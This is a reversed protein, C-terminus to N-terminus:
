GVRTWALVLGVPTSVLLVALGALYVVRAWAPAPSTGPRRAAGLFVALAVVTVLGGLTTVVPTAILTGIVTAAVGVNWGFLEADIVRRSPRQPALWAQGAGLAIQAVGAVLVLFAALWSGHEFDTPGTVAAVFGGAVVAASGVVLFPVAWRWREESAVSGVAADDPLESQLSPAPQTTV